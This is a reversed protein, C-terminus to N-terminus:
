PLANRKDYNFNFGLFSDFYNGDQKKQKASASGDVDIKEINNKIDIM